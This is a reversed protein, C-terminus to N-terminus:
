RSLGGEANRGGCLNQRKCREVEKNTIGDGKGLVKNNRLMFTGKSKGKNEMRTSSSGKGEKRLYTCLM